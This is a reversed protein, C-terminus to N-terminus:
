QSFRKIWKRPSEFKILIVGIALVVVIIIAVIGEGSGLFGIVNGTIGFKTEKDKTETKDEEKETDSITTLNTPNTENTQTSSPIFGGGSSGGGGGSPNGSSSPSTGSSTSTSVALDLYITEGGQRTSNGALKDLIKFEIISPSTGAIGTKVYLDYKGAEIVDYVSELTSDVYVSIQTGVPADQGDISANGIFHDPIPPVASVLGILFVGFLILTIEKKAKLNIKKEM